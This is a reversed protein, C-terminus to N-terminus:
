SKPVDGYAKTRPVIESSCLLVNAFVFFAVAYKFIFPEKVEVLMMVVFLLLGSWFEKKMFLLNRLILYSFAIYFVTAMILGMGYYNQIYGSDHGAGFDPIHRGTGFISQFELPPIRMSAFHSVSQVEGPAYFIEFARSTMSLYSRGLIPDIHSLLIAINESQLVLLAIVPLVGFVAMIRARANTLFFFGLFTLSVLLGTRGSLINSFLIFFISITCFVKWGWRKEGRLLVLFSFTGLSQILSFSAEAANAFAPPRAASALDRNGTQILFQSIFERYTPSFFSYAHVLAQLLVALAIYTHFRKWDFGIWTLYLIVGAISFLPFHFNRSAQTFDRDGSLVFAILVYGASFVLISVVALNRNIFESLNISGSPFTLILLLLFALRGTSVSPAATTSVNYLLMFAILVGGVHRGWSPSWETVFRNRSSIFWSGVRKWNLIILIVFFLFIGIAFPLALAQKRNPSSRAFPPYANKISEFVGSTVVSARGIERSIRSLLEQRLLPDETHKLQIQLEKHNAELGQITRKRIEEAAESVIDRAVKAALQADPARVSVSMNGTLYGIGVVLYRDSFYGVECNPKKCRDLYGPITKLEHREIIRALLEADLLFARVYEMESEMSGRLGSQSESFARPSSDDKIGYKAIRFVSAAQYLTPSAVIHWIGAGLFFGVVLILLWWKKLALASLVKARAMAVRSLAAFEEFRADIM